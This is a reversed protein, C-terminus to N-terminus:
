QTTDISREPGDISTVDDVLWGGDRQVLTYRLHYVVGREVRVTASTDLSVHEYDWVETTTVTATEQAPFVVGEFDLSVLTALMQMRGEGLAAMLHYERQAQEQTATRNLSNMDFVAFGQILALNYERVVAQVTATDADRTGGGCSSVLVATVVLCVVALLPRSAVGSQTAMRRPRSLLRM